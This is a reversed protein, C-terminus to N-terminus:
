KNIIDRYKDCDEDIKSMQYNMFSDYEEKGLNKEILWRYKQSQSKGHQFEIPKKDKLDYISDISSVKLKYIIDDKEEEDTFSDPIEKSLREAILIIGYEKNAEINEETKLERVGLLKIKNM